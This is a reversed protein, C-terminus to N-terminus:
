RTEFTAVAPDRTRGELVDAVMTTTDRFVTKRAFALAYSGVIPVQKADPLSNCRGTSFFLHCADRIDVWTMPFPAVRDYFARQGIPDDTGSLFVMPLSAARHGDAGIWEPRPLGAMSFGAVVRRDRVGHRFAALDAENCPPLSTGADPSAASPSCRREIAETDFTAGAVTWVTFAGFSHGSMFTRSADTKATLPDGAPLKDLADLAATVDLGRLYYISPPKESPTDGLTNGVHRPAVAVWGHSAFHRMLFASNDPYGRDGHSYVHVPYKGDAHPSPALSAGTFAVRDYFIANYRPHEGDDDLTPYWLNVDFTRREGRPTVYSTEVTRYGVNFPGAEGVPWTEPKTTPAARQPVGGADPATAIPESRESSCGFIGALGAFALATAFPPRSASGTRMAAM